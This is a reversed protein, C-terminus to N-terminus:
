EVAGAKVLFSELAMLATGPMELAHQHLLRGDFRYGKMFGGSSAGIPNSGSGVGKRVGQTISGFIELRQRKRNQNDAATVGGQLTFISAQVNFINSGSNAANVETNGIVLNNQAILGILDSSNPDIRPNTYCLLDNTVFINGGAGSLTDSVVSIKGKISGEVFVDVGKVFLVGNAPPVTVPDGLRFDGYYGTNNPSQCGTGRNTLRVETFYRIKQEGAGDVFFQLHLQQQSDLNEGNNIAYKQSWDPGPGGPAFLPGSPQPLSSPFLITIGSRPAGRTFVPYTGATITVPKFTTVMGLFVPMVPNGFYHDILLTNNSHLNGNATDYTTWPITGPDNNTLVVFQDFYGQSLYAVFSVKEKQAGSAPYSGQSVVRLREGERTVAVDLKGGEFDVNNRFNEWYEENMSGLSAATNDFFLATAAMNIGSRAIAYANSRCEHAVFNDVADNTNRGSNWVIMLLSLGVVLFVSVRGTM